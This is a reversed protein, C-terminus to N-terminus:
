PLSMGGLRAMDALNASDSVSVAYHEYCASWHMALLAYAGLIVLTGM